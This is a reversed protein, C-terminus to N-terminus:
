TEENYANLFDDVHGSEDWGLVLKQCDLYNGTHKYAATQCVIESFIIDLFYRPMGDRIALRMLHAAARSEGEYSFPAGLYIHHIDHLTRFMLNRVPGLLDSANEGTWIYLINTNGVKRIMERCSTYPQIKTYIVRYPVEHVENSYVLEVWDRFVELQEPALLENVKVHPADLYARGITDYDLRPM